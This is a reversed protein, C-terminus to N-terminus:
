EKVEKLEGWNPGVKFSCPIVLEMGNVLHPREMAARIDVMAQPIDEPKCQGIVEDHVNM